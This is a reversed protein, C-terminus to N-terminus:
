SRSGNQRSAADRANKNGSSTQSSSSKFKESIQAPNGETKSGPRSSPTGDKELYLRLSDLYPELDRTISVNSM